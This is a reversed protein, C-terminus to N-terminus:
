FKIFDKNFRLMEYLVAVFQNKEGARHPSVWEWVIKKDRTVEFARGSESDTILINGNALSQSYGMAKTFFSFDTEGSFSWVLEYTLPNIEIVRSFELGNDFLLITGNKLLAPYHQKVINNPGWVWLVKETQINIIAITNINRFSTLINGKKFLPSISEQSGDFIEVTNTHFIDIKGRNITQLNNFILYAFPSNKFISLLSYSKIEKGKPTLVTIFDEVIPVNRNYEPIINEKSTITYISGNEDTYIDHHCRGKYKWLLNSDKDLKILGVYNYIALLEGNPYLKVTKWSDNPDGTICFKNFDPWDKKIDYYHWKHLQNGEMDMLVAEPAHYSTYLNLGAYSLDRDYHTVGENKTEKKTGSVYPLTRLNKLRDSQSQIASIESFGKPVQEQGTLSFYLKQFIIYPFIEYKGSIFGWCFIVFLVSVLIFIIKKRM